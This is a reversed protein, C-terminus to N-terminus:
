ELFRVVVRGRTNSAHMKCRHTAQAERMSGLSSFLPRLENSQTNDSAASESASPHISLRKFERRTRSGMIQLSVQLETSRLLCRDSRLLDACFLWM